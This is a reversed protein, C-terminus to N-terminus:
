CERSMMQGVETNGDMERNVFAYPDDNKMMHFSTQICEAFSDLESPLGKHFSINTIHEIMEDFLPQYM